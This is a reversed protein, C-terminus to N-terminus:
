RRKALDYMFSIQLLLNSSFSSFAREELFGLRAAFDNLLDGGEIPSRIENYM